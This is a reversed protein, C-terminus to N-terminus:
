LIGPIKLALVSTSTSPSLDASLSVHCHQLLQSKKTDIGRNIIPLGKFVFMHNNPGIMHHALGVIHRNLTMLVLFGQRLM